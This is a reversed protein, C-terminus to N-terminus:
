MSRTLRSGKPRTSAPWPMRPTDQTMCPCNGHRGDQGSRPVYAFDKATLHKGAVEKTKKGAAKVLYDDILIDDSISEVGIKVMKTALSKALEDIRVCAFKRLETTGTADKVM